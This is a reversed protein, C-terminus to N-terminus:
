CSHLSASAEADGLTVLVIETRPAQGPAARWLRGHWEEIQSDDAIIGGAPRRGRQLADTVLKLLNDLDSRQRTACYLRVTLAVPGTHPERRRWRSMEVFGRIRDEADRTRTPTYTRGQGTRPRGKPIPDGPITIDLLIVGPCRSEIRPYADLRPLSAAAGTNPVGRM